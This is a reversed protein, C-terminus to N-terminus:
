ELDEASEEMLAKVERATALAQRWIPRAYERAYGRDHTSNETLGEVAEARLETKATEVAAKAEKADSRAIADVTSGGSHVVVPPTPASPKDIIRWLLITALVAAIGAVIPWAPVHTSRGSANSIVIRDGGDTPAGVGDEDTGQVHFDVKGHGDAAEAVVRHLGMACPTIRTSARGQADTQVLAYTQGGAFEIAEPPVAVFNVTCDKVPKGATDRIQVVLERAFPTHEPGSFRDPGLVRIPM